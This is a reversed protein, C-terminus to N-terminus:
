SSAGDQATGGPPLVPVSGVSDPPWAAFIGERKDGEGLSARGALIGGRRELSSIGLTFLEIKYIEGKEPALM